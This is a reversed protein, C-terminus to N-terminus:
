EERTTEGSLSTESISADELPSVSDVVAMNPKPKPKKQQRHPAVGQVDPNDFSSYLILMMLLGNRLVVYVKYAHLIFGGSGSMSM